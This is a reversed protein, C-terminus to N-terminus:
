QAACQKIKIPSSQWENEQVATHFSRYDGSNIYRVHVRHKVKDVLSREAQQISVQSGPM